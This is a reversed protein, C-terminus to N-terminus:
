LESIGQKWKKGRRKTKPALILLDPLVQALHKRMVTVYQQSENPIGHSQIELIRITKRLQEGGQESFLRLGFGYMKIVDLCHKELIHLKPYVPSHM